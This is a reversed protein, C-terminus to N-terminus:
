WSYRVAITSFTRTYSHEKPAAVSFVEKPVNNRTKVPSSKPLLLRCKDTAFPRGVQKEQRSLHIFSHITPETYQGSSRMKSVYCENLTGRWYIANHWLITLAPSVKGFAYRLTPHKVLPVNLFYLIAAYWLPSPLLRRKKQSNKPNCFHWSFPLFFISDFHLVLRLLFHCVRPHLFTLPFQFYNRFKNEAPFHCNM